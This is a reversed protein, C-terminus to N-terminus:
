GLGAGSASTNRCTCSVKSVYENQGLAAHGKELARASGREAAPDLMMPLVIVTMVLWLVVALGLAHLWQFRLLLWLALFWVVLQLANLALCGMLRGWRTTAVHGVHDESMVRGRDDLYRLSQGKQVLLKGKNPGTTEREAKFHVEQGNEMVIIEDSHGPPQKRRDDLYVSHGQDDRSLNYHTRNKPTDEGRVVWLEAFQTDELPSFRFLTDYKPGVRGSATAAENPNAYALYCWFTFFLGVVAAAAPSRWHLDAPPETYFLGQLFLAGVWLLATLAATM